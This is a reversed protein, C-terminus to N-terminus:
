FDGDDTQVFVDVGPLVGGDVPPDAPAPDSATASTVATTDVPAAPDGADPSTVGTFVVPDSTTMPDVVVLPDAAVTPALATDPSDDVTPTSGDGVFAAYDALLAALEDDISISTEIALFMLADRLPPGPGNRRVFGWRPYVPVFDTRNVVGPLPRCIDCTAGFDRYPLRHHVPSKIQNDAAPSDHVPGARRSKFRINADLIAPDGSNAPDIRGAGLLDVGPALDDRRAKDVDMRM